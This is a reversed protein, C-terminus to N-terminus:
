CATVAIITGDEKYRVVQCKDTTTTPGSQGKHMVKVDRNMELCTLWEVYGPLFEKPQICRVKDAAPYSAWNKDLQARADEEDNMCSKFIDFTVSFIATVAKESSHCALEIDLKPLGNGKALATPAAVLLIAAFVAVKPKTIM